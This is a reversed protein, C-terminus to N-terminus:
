IGGGIYKSIADMNVEPYAFRNPVKGLWVSPDNKKGKRVFASGSRLSVGDGKGIGKNSCSAHGVIIEDGHIGLVVGTHGYGSNSWSFIAGVRPESGTPVGLGGLYGVVAHGDGTAASIKVPTFKKIFFQSFSVCNSGGGNCMNWMANGITNRSDNNKNEGYNMVLKKAQDMSLGGSSISSSVSSCGSGSNLEATISPDVPWSMAEQAKKLRTALHPIGAGFFQKVMIDTASSLDNSSVMNAYVNKRSTPAINNLQWWIVELQVGLSTIDGEVGAQKQWYLVAVGPDWQALGWADGIGASKSPNWPHHRAGAVLPNPEEGKNQRLIPNFKSEQYINGVIAAAIFKPAGKALFFNFIKKGNDDGTLEASSASGASCQPTRQAYFPIDQAEFADRLTDNSLTTAYLPNYFIAAAIASIAAVAVFSIVKKYNM